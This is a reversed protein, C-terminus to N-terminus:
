LSLPYLLLTAIMAAYGTALHRQSDAKAHGPQSLVSLARWSVPERREAKAIADRAHCGPCLGAPYTTCSETGECPFHRFTELAALLDANVQRLQNVEVALQTLRNLEPLEPVQPHTNM